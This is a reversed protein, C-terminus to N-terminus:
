INSMKKIAINYKLNFININKSNIISELEKVSIYTQNINYQSYKSYDESAIISLMYESCKKIYEYTITWNQSESSIRAMLLNYKSYSINLSVKDFSLNEYYLLVKNYLNSLSIITATRDNNQIAVFLNDLVGGFDTLHVKDISLSNLDLICSDWFNYLVIAQNQLDQWNGSNYITNSMELLMDELFKIEYYIKEDNANTHTNNKYLAFVAIIVVTIIIIMILTIIINVNKKNM